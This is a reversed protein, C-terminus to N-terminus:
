DKKMDKWPFYNCLKIHESAPYLVAHLNRISGLGWTGENAQNNQDLCVGDVLKCTFLNIKNGSRVWETPVSHKFSSIEVFTKQKIWDRGQAVNSYVHKIQVSFLSNPKRLMNHRDSSQDEIVWWTWFPWATFSWTKRKGSCYKWLGWDSTVTVAPQRIPVGLPWSSMEWGAQSKIETINVVQHCHLEVRRM